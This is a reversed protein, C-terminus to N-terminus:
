REDDKLKVDQWFISMFNYLDISGTIYGHNWLKKESKANSVMTPSSNLNLKGSCNRLIKCEDSYNEETNQEDFSFQVTKCARMLCLDFLSLSNYVCSHPALSGYNHEVSSRTFHFYPSVRMRWEDQRKECVQEIKGIGHWHKTEEWICHMHVAWSIGLMKGSTNLFLYPILDGAICMFM